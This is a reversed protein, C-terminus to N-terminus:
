RTRLKKYLSRAVVEPVLHDVNGGLAVTERILRSSIFSHEPAATMFVTEINPDFTRNTLAMSIESDVDLMGRIGRIITNVKQSRCFDVTMGDFIKVTVNGLHATSEKLLDLREEPTFIPTKEFNVGLGVIFSSAIRSVREIMDLHGNTVPDFSGPYLAKM